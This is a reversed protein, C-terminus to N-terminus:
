EIREVPCLKPPRVVDLSHRAHETRVSQEHEKKVAAFAIQAVRCVPRRLPSESKGGASSKVRGGEAGITRLDCKCGSDTAGTLDHYNVREGPCHARPDRM